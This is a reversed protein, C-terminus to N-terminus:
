QLFVGGYGVAAVKLGAMYVYREPLEVLILLGAELRWGPGAAVPCATAPSRRSTLIYRM